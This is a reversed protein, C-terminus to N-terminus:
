HVTAKIVPSYNYTSNPSNSARAGVRFYYEGKPLKTSAWSFTYTKPSGVLETDPTGETNLRWSNIYYNSPDYNSSVDENVIPYNNVMFRIEVLKSTNFASKTITYTFTSDTVSAQIRYFPTVEFNLEADGNHTLNVEVSDGSYIFPGNLPFAKYKDAFFRKVSYTGDAKVPVDLPQASPYKPNWQIFRVTGGGPQKTEITQDTESDILKGHVGADPEAFNDYDKCGTFILLAISLMYIFRTTKM